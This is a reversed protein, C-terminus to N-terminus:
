KNIGKSHQQARLVTDDPSLGKFPDSSGSPGCMDKFAVHSPENGQPPSTSITRGFGTPSARLDPLVEKAEEPPPSPEAPPPTPERKKRIPYKKPEPKSQPPDNETTNKPRSLRDLSSISGNTAPQVQQSAAAKKRREEALKALKSSGGLLKPPPRPSAMPVIHGEM